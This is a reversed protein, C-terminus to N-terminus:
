PLTAKEGDYAVAVAPNGCKEYVITMSEKGTSLNGWTKADNTFERQGNNYMHAVDHTVDALGVFAGHIQSLSCDTNAQTGVIACSVALVKLAKNM